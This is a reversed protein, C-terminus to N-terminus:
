DGLAALRIEIDPKLDTAPLTELIKQYLQRAEDRRGLTALIRAQHFLAWDRRAGDENPQMEQFAALAQELAQSRAEPTEAAEAAGEYAYGVAERASLVVPDPLDSRAVEAFAKAAEDHRGLEMLARGRLLDGAAGLGGGVEIEQVRSVVTEAREAASGFPEPEGAAPPEPADGDTTPEAVPRDAAELAAAFQTTARAAARQETWQYIAFGILLAAVLGIALAIKLAHPRLADAWRNVGAVFEDPEEATSRPKDEDRVKAKAVVKKKKKNEAM